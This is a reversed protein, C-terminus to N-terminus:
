EQVNRPHPHEHSVWYAHLTSIAHDRPFHSGQSSLTLHLHTKIKGTQNPFNRDTAQSNTDQQTKPFAKQM